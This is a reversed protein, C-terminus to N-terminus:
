VAATAVAAIPFAAAEMHKHFSWTTPMWSDGKKMAQIGERIYGGASVIIVAVAPQVGLIKLITMAGFAAAVHLAVDVWDVSMIKDLM